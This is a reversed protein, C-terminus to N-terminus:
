ATLNVKHTLIYKVGFFCGVDIAAQFLIVIWLALHYSVASAAEMIPETILSSILGWIFMAALYILVTMGKRNKTTFMQGISIVLYFELLTAPVSVIMMLVAEVAIMPDYSIATWIWSGFAEFLVGLFQWIGQDLGILFILSSLICVVAGFLMTLLATLLKAWILQCPTVPLSLTMYGEGTFFSKSFREIGMAFCVLMTAMIAFVYFMGLLSQMPMGESEGILSIRFLIALGLMVAAPIFVVRFLAILEHKILKIVM